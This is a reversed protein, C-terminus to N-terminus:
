LDQERTDRISRLEDEFAKLKARLNAIKLEYDVELTRKAQEYHFFYTHYLSKHSERRSFKRLGTAAVRVYCPAVELVRVKEVKCAHRRVLYMFDVPGKPKPFLADM